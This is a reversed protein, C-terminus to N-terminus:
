NVADEEKELPVLFIGAVVAVVGAVFMALAVASVAVMEAYVVPANVVSLVTPAVFYLL